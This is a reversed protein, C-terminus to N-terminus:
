LEGNLAKRKAKIKELILTAIREADDIGYRCIFVDSMKQAEDCIETGEKTKDNKQKKGKAM